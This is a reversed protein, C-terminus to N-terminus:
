EDGLLIRRGAHTLTAANPFVDEALQPWSSIAKGTEMGSVLFRPSVSKLDYIHSVISNKEKASLFPANLEELMTDNDMHFPRTTNDIDYREVDILGNQSTAMLLPRGFKQAAQRVMVKIAFDDCEEIILDCDQVFESIKEKSLGESYLEVKIDPDVSKVRKACLEAKSQDVCTTGFLMRNSNSIEFSDFDAIRYTGGIGERLFAEM